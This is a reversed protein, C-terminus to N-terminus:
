LGFGVVGFRSFNDINNIWFINILGYGYKFINGVIEYVGSM